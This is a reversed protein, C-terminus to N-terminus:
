ERIEVGDSTRQVVRLVIQDSGTRRPISVADRQPVPLRQGPSDRGNLQRIGLERTLKEEPCALKVAVRGATANVVEISREELRAERQLSNRAIRHRDIAVDTVRAVIADDV